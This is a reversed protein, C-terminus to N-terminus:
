FDFRRRRRRTVVRRVEGTETTIQREEMEVPASIENEIEDITFTESVRNQSALNRFDPLISVGYRTEANTPTLIDFRGEVIAHQFSAGEEQTLPISIRNMAAEARIGLYVTASKPVSNWGGKTFGFIKVVAGEPLEYLEDRWAGMEKRLGPFALTYQSRIRSMQPFKKVAGSLFMENPTMPFGNSGVLFAWLKASGNGRTESGVIARFLM